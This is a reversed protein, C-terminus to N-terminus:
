RRVAIAIGVPETEVPYVTTNTVATPQIKGSLDGNITRRRLLQGRVWVQGGHEKGVM